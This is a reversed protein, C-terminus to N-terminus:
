GRYKLIYQCPGAVLVDWEVIEVVGVGVHCYVFVSEAGDRDVSESDAVGKM